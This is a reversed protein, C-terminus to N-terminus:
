RHHQLFWTYLEDLKYAIDDSDVHGADPIETWRVEAGAAKLADYMKRADASTTTTDDSGNFIWAPPNKIVKVRDLDAFRGGIAAIAAFRDPRDQSIAWTGMAGMSFGCLYYRTPDTRTSAAIEDVVEEVATPLWGGPSRLSVVIFPFDPHTQAFGQPGDVRARQPEEGRGSGHLYFIVPWLKKPDDDYGKPLRVFYEYRVATGLKQRMAQWWQRDTKELDFKSAAPNEAKAAAEAASQKVPVADKPACYLTQYLTYTDTTGNLFVTTVAGYRGPITPQTVRNFQADYYATDLSYPGFNATIRAPDPYDIMPFDTGSFVEKGRPKLWANARDPGRGGQSQGSLFMDKRVKAIDPLTITQVTQGDLQVTLSAPITAAAVPVPPPIPLRVQATARDGDKTLTATALTKAGDLVRITQGALQSEAIASVYISKLEDCGGWIAIPSPASPKDALRVLPFNGWWAGTTSNVWGGRQQAPGDSDNVAFRVGVITGLEPKIKISTWPLLMDMIYGHDTKQVAIRPTFAPADKKFAISRYDFTKVRPASVDKIRAEKAAADANREPPTPTGRGPSAIVQPFSATKDTTMLFFEVSDGQFMRGADPEECPTSDTVDVQLLVGEENWGLRGTAQFDSSKRLLANEGALAHIVLGQGKWDSVTGDVKVGTVKPLDTIKPQDPRSLPQEYSVPGCSAMASLVAACLAVSAAMLLSDKFYSTLGALMM